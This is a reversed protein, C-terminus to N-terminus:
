SSDDAGWAWLLMALCGSCCIRFIQSHLAEQLGCVQAQHFLMTQAVYDRRKDWRNDGYDGPNDFRINFTMLTLDARSQAGAYVCAVLATALLFLTKM